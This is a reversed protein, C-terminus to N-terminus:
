PQQHVPVMLHAYPTGKWMVYPGGSKPDTPFAALQAPDTPLVMVHPGSAIWEDGAAPTQAYPDTNSADSGGALMYMLGVTDAPPPRRTIFAMLWAMANADMCMPDPGPSRPNDAMCTFGNSGARLTRMTGDSNMSVITASRAVAEPAASMASAIRAQDGAPPQSGQAAFVATAALAAAATVVTLKVASPM